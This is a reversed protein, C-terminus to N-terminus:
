CTHISTIHVPRHVCREERLETGAEGGTAAADLLHALRAEELEFVEEALVDGRSEQGWGILPSVATFPDEGAAASEPAEEILDEMGTTRAALDDAVNTGEELVVAEAVDVRAGTGVALGAQAQGQVREGAEAMGDGPVNFSEEGVGSLIPEAEM